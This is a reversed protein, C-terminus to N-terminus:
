SANASKLSWPWGRLMRTFPPYSAEPGMGRRPRQGQSTARGTDRPRPHWLLAGGAGAKWCLSLSPAPLGPRRYAIQADGSESAGPCGRSMHATQFAGAFGRHRRRGSPDDCQKGPYARHRRQSKGRNSDWGLRSSPRSQRLALVLATASGAGGTGPLSSDSSGLLVYLRPARSSCQGPVSGSPPVV